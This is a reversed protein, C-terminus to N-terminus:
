KTSNFTAEFRIVVKPDVTLTLFLIGVEPPKVGFDTMNIGFEGWVRVSKESIVTWAGISTPQTVGAITLEGDLLAENSHVIIEKTQFVIEPFQKAKLAKRLHKEMEEGSSCKVDKVSMTVKIPTSIKGEFDISPLVVNEPNVLSIVAGNNCKWGGLTSTGNIEFSATYTVGGLARLVQSTQNAWAFGFSAFWAVIGILFKHLM